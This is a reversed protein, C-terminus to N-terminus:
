KLANTHEDSRPAEGFPLSGDLFASELHPAFGFRPMPDYKLEVLKRALTDATPSVIVHSACERRFESLGPLIVRGGVALAELAARSIAERDSLILTFLAAQMLSSLTERDVPGLYMAEGRAEVDDDEPSRVLTTYPLPTYTRTSRPHGRLRVFLM